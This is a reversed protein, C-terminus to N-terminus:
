LPTEWLSGGGAIVAAVATNNSAAARPLSRAPRDGSSREETQLRTAKRAARRPSDSKTPPSVESNDDIRSVSDKGDDCSEAIPAVEIPCQTM